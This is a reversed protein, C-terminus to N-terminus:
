PNGAQTQLVGLRWHRMSRFTATCVRAALDNDVQPLACPYYTISLKKM